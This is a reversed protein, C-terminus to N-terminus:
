CLSLQGVVLLLVAFSATSGHGTDLEEDEELIRGEVASWVYELAFHSSHTGAICWVM